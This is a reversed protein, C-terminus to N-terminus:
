CSHMISFWFFIYNYSWSLYIYREFEWYNSSRSWWFLNHSETISDCSSWRRGTFIYYGTWYYNMLGNFIWYELKFLIVIHCVRRYRLHVAYIFPLTAPSGNCVLTCHPSCSCPFCNTFKYTTFDQGHSLYHFWNSYCTLLYPSSHLFPVSFKWHPSCPLNIHTEFIINDHNKNRSRHKEKRSCHSRPYQNWM